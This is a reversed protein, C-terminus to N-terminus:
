RTPLCVSFWLVFIWLVGLSLYQGGHNLLDLTSLTMMTTENIKTISKEHIRFQSSRQCKFKYNQYYVSWFDKQVLSIDRYMTYKMYFCKNELYDGSSM